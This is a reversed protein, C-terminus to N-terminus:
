AFSGLRFMLDDGTVTLNLLQRDFIIPHFFRPRYLVGGTGTPLLLMERLAPPAVPWQCLRKETWVRDRTYPSTKWPQINSCLAIRRARLSIVANRNSAMYCQLLSSVTDKKYIEHDDITIIV